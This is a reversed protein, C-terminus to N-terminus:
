VTKVFCKKVNKVNLQVVKAFRNMVAPVNMLADWVCPPTVCKAIPVANHATIETVANATIVSMAQYPIAATM